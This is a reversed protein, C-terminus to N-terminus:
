SKALKKLYQYIWCGDKTLKEQNLNHLTNKKVGPIHATTLWKHNKLCFLWIYKVNSNDVSNQSSGMKKMLLIRTQSDSFIKVHREILYDKFNRIYYWVALLEMSNIDFEKETIYMGLKGINYHDFYAGKFFWIFQLLMANRHKTCLNIKRINQCELEQKTEVSFNKTADFEGKIM